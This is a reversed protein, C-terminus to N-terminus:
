RILSAIAEPDHLDVGFGSGLVRRSRRRSNDLIRLILVLSNEMKLADLSTGSKQLADPLSYMFSVLDRCHVVKGTAVDKENAPRPDLVVV